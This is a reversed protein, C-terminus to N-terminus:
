KLGGGAAAQTRMLQQLMAPDFDGFGGGPISPVNAKPNIQLLRERAEIFLYDLRDFRGDDKFASIVEQYMAGARNRDGMQESIRGLHYKGMLSIRGQDSESMEKFSKRAEELKGAGELALGLGELANSRLWETDPNAAALFEEYAKVASDYYGLDFNAGAEGLKAIIGIPSGSQQKSTEGFLKLSETARAERTNFSLEDDDDVEAPIDQGEPAKVVPAMSAKLGKEISASAEAASAERMNNVIIGVIAAVLAVALLAGIQKRRDVAWDLFSMSKAVFEDKSPDLEDKKSKKSAIKKLAM